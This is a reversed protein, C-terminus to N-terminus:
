RRVGLLSDKLQQFEKYRITSLHTLYSPGKKRFLEEAIRYGVKHVEDLEEQLPEVKEDQSKAYVLGSFKGVCEILQKLSKSKDPAYKGFLPNVKFHLFHGSEEGITYAPLPLDYECVRIRNFFPNYSPKVINSTSEVSPYEYCNKFALFYPSLIWIANQMQRILDQEKRNTEPDLLMERPIRKIM